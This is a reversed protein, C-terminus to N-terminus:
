VSPAGDVQALREACQIAKAKIRHRHGCEALRLHQGDSTIRYLVGVYSDFEGAIRVGGLVRPYQGSM